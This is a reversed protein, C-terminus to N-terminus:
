IQKAENSGEMNIEIMRLIIKGNPGGLAKITKYTKETTEWTNADIWWLRGYDKTISQLYDWSELPQTFHHVAKITRVAQKFDDM